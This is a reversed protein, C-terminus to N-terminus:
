RKRYREYDSQESKTTKRASIIRIIDDRETFSIILLRLRESHGIIVERYEDESHRDDDFVAATSDRFVSAAEEFKVGHKAENAASKRRDWSFQPTM